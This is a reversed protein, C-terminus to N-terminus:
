RRRLCKQIFMTIAINRIDEQTMWMFDNHLREANDLCKSMLWLEEDAKQNYSPTAETRYEQRTEPRDRRFPNTVHLNKEKSVFEQLKSEEKEPRKVMEEPIIKCVKGEEHYYFAMGNQMATKDVYPQLCKPCNVVVRGPQSTEEETM